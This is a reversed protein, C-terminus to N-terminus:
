INVLQRVSKLHVSGDNKMEIELYEEDMDKGACEDCVCESCKRPVSVNRKSDGGGGGGIYLAADTRSFEGHYAFRGFHAKYTGGCHYMMTPKVQKPKSEGDEKWENEKKIDDCVPEM